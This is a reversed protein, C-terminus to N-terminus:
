AFLNDIVFLSSLGLVAEMFIVKWRNQLCRIDIYNQHFGVLRATGESRLADSFAAQHRSSCGDGICNVMRRSDPEM